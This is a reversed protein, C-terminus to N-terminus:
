YDCRCYCIIPNHFMEKLQSNIKPMDFNWKIESTVKKSQHFTCQIVGKVEDGPGFESAGNEFIIASNMKCKVGSM